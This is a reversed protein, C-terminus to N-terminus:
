SVDPCVPAATLDNKSPRYQTASPTAAADCPNDIPSILSNCTTTISVPGVVGGIPIGRKASDCPCTPGPIAGGPPISSM